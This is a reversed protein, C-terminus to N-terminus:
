CPMRIGEITSVCKLYLAGLDWPHSLMGSRPPMREGSSPSRSWTSHRAQMTIDRM